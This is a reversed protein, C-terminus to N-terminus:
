KNVRRCVLVRQDLVGYVGIYPNAKKCAQETPYETHSYLSERETLWPAIAIEVIMYVTKVPDSM